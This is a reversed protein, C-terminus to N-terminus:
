NQVIERGQSIKTPTFVNTAGKRPNQDTAM